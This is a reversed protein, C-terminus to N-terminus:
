PPAARFWVPQSGFGRAYEAVDTWRSVLVACRSIHGRMGRPVERHLHCLRHNRAWASPAM